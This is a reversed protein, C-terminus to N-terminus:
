RTKALYDIVDSKAKENDYTLKSAFGNENLKSHTNAVIESPSPLYFQRREKMGDTSVSEIVYSFMLIEEGDITYKEIMIDRAPVIVGNIVLVMQRTGTDLSVSVIAM